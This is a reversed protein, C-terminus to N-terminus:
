PLLPMDKLAGAKKKRFYTSRSMNLLEWPAKKVKALHEDVCLDIAAAIRPDTSPLPVEPAPVEVPQVKVPTGLKSWDSFWSSAGSVTYGLDKVAFDLAAKRDMTNYAHHLKATREKRHNATMTM